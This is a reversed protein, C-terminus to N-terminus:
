PDPHPLFRISFQGKTSMLNSARFIRPRESICTLRVTMFGGGGTTGSGNVEDNDNLPLDYSFQDNKKAFMIPFKKWKEM